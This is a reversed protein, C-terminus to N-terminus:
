VPLWCSRIVVLSFSWGEKEGGKGEWDHLRAQERLGARTSM